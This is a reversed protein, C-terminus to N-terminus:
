LWTAIGIGSTKAATRPCAQIVERMRRAGDRGATMSVIGMLSLKSVM